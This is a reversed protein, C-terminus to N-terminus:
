LKVICVFWFHSNVSIVYINKAKIGIIINNKDNEELAEASQYKKMENKGNKNKKAQFIFLTKPKVISGSKLGYRVSINEFIV